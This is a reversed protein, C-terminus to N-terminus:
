RIISVEVHVKYEDGDREVSFGDTPAYATWGDGQPNRTERSSLGFTPETNPDDTSYFGEIELDEGFPEQRFLDLCEANSDAVSLECAREYNEDNIADVWAQATEEPSRPPDDSGGCGAILSSAILGVAVARV